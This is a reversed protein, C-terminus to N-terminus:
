AGEKCPQRTRDCRTGQASPRSRGSGRTSMSRCLPLLMPLPLLQCLAPWWWLFEFFCVTLFMCGLQLSCLWSSGRAGILRGQRRVQLDLERWKDEDNTTDLIM